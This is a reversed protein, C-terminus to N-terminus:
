SKLLAYFTRLESSKQKHRAISMLRAKIAVLNEDLKGKWKAKDKKSQHFLIFVKDQAIQEKTPFVLALSAASFAMWDGNNSIPMSLAVPITHFM